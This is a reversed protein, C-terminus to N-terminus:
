IVGNPILRITVASEVILSLWSAAFLFEFINLDFLSLSLSWVLMEKCYGTIDARRGVFLSLYDSLYTILLASVRSKPANTVLYFSKSLSNSGIKFSLSCNFEPFRAVIIPFKGPSIFRFWLKLPMPNLFFGISDAWYISLFLILRYYISVIM